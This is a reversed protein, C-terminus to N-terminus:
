NRYFVYHKLQYSSLVTQATLSIKIGPIMQAKEVNFFYMAQGCAIFKVGFNKLEILVPLDPNDVNHKKKYSENTM